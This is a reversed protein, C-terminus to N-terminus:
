GAQWGKELRDLEEEFLDEQREEESGTSSSQTPSLALDSKPDPARSGPMAYPQELVELLGKPENWMAETMHLEPASIRLRLRPLTVM